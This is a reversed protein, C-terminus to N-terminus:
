EVVLQHPTRRLFQHRAWRPDTDPFDQRYHVGRTETRQLAAQCILYAATLMNQIEWGAQDFFEKDLVYRGWFSVIELTEALREGRRIIGANRWM